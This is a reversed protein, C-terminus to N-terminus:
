LQNLPILATILFLGHFIIKNASEKGNDSQQLNNKSKQLQLFLVVLLTLYIIVAPIGAQVGTDLLINHARDWWGGWEKNIYPLSPIYNKDFGVLSLSDM